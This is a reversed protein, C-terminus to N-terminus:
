EIIQKVINPATTTQDEFHIKSIKVPVDDINVFSLKLAKFVNSIVSSGPKNNNNVATGLANGNVADSDNGLV